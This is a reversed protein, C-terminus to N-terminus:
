PSSNEEKENKNSDTDSDSTIDDETVVGDSIHGDVGDTLNVDPTSSVAPSEDPAIPQTKQGFYGLLPIGIFMGLFITLIGTTLLSERRQRKKIEEPSMPQDQFYHAHLPHVKHKPKSKPNRKSKSKPM